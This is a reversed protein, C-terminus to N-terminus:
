AIRSVSTRPVACFPRTLLSSLVGCLLPLMVVLVLGDICSAFDPDIGFDLFRVGDSEAIETYQKYLTPVSCGMHALLHKLRVFDAACHDGTLQAHVDRSESPVYPRRAHVLGFGTALALLEQLFTRKSSAPTQTPNRNEHM